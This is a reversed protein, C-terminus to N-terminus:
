LKINKTVNNQPFPNPQEFKREPAIQRINKTRLLKEKKKKKTLEQKTGQSTLKKGEEKYIEQITLFVSRFEVLCRSFQRKLHLHGVLHLQRTSVFAM